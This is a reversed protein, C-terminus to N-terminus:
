VLNVFRDGTQSPFAGQVVAPGRHRTGPGFGKHFPMPPQAHQPLEVGESNGALDGARRNRFDEAFEVFIEENSLRDVPPQPM